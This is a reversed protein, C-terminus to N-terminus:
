MPKPYATFSGLRPAMRGKSTGGSVRYLSRGLEALFGEANNLQDKYNIGYVPIGEDRCPRCPEPHEVRCPACWSAWYNVLKVQVMACPPM